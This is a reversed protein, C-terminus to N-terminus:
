VFVRFRRQKINNIFDEGALNQVDEHVDATVLELLLGHCGICLIV